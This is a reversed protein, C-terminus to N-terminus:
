KKQMKRAMEVAQAISYSGKIGMMDVYDGLHRYKGDIAPPTQPGASAGAQSMGDPAMGSAGLGGAMMQSQSAADPSQPTGGPQQSGAFHQLAQQFSVNHNMPDFANNNANPDQSSNSRADLQRYRSETMPKSQKKAKRGKCVWCERARDVRCTRGDFSFGNAPNPFPM